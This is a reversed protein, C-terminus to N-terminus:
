GEGEGKGKKRMRIMRKRRRSSVKSWAIAKIGGENGPEVVREAIRLQDGELRIEWVGGSKLGVWGREGGEGEGGEKEQEGENEWCM